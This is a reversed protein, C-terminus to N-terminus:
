RALPHGGPPLIDIHRSLCPCSARTAVSTGVLQLLFSETLQARPLRVSAVLWGTLRRCAPPGQCDPAVQMDGVAEDARAVM